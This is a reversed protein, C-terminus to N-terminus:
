KPWTNLYGSLKIFVAHAYDRDPYLRWTGTIRSPETHAYLIASVLKHLALQSAHPPQESSSGFARNNEAVIDELRAKWMKFMESDNDEPLVMELFAFRIRDELNKLVTYIGTNSADDYVTYPLGDVARVCIDVPLWHDLYAQMHDVTHGQWAFESAYQTELPDVRHSYSFIPPPPKAVNPGHSPSSPPQHKFPDGHRTAPATGMFRTAVLGALGLSAAIASTIFVAGTAASM